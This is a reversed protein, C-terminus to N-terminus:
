PSLSAWRRCARRRPPAAAGRADDEEVLDVGDGRPAFAHHAVHFFADHRLQQRQHVAQRLPLVDITSAAVLRGLAKSGAKRRGPRKSRSIECGWERGAHAAPSGPSGCGPFARPRPRRAQRAHGGDRVAEHAGVQLGEAALRAHDGQTASSGCIQIEGLGVDGVFHQGLKCTPSPRNGPPAAPLPAKPRGRPTRRLAWRRRSRRRRVAVLDLLSQLLGDLPRQLMRLQELGQLERRGLAHKSEARRAAALRQEGLGQRGLGAHVEDGDLSRLQQRHVHALRFASKRSTKRLALCAAGQM